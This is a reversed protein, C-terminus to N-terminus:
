RARMEWYAEFLAVLNEDPINYPIHNGVSFFYGPCPKGLDLCRKVEARVEKRGGFTMPRCDANGIIVHTRGYKRVVTELDTLPEFIFGQAGAAVLDDFFETYNGDSCFLVTKGADRLLEWYRRFRPFVQRRYFGPRFIAGQTWVMDDHTLFVEIETKAWAEAAALMIREMSDLVRGFREEDTGAAELLLAWGFTAIAFSVVSKYLGGCVVADSAERHSRWRARYSEALAESDPLGYEAVADFSLVEEVSSFPCHVNADYDPGGEFFIGHGMNSFRGELPPDLTLWVLDLDLKRRYAEQQTPDGDPIGTLLRGARPHSIFQMHPVEPPAQLRIAALGREYSM